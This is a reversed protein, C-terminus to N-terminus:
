RFGEEKECWRQPHDNKRDIWCHWVINPDTDSFWFADDASGLGPIYGCGTLFLLLFVYRM